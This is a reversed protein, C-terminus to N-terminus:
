MSLLDSKRRELAPPWDQEELPRRGALSWRVLGEAKSLIPNAPLWHMVHRLAAHSARNFVPRLWPHFVVRQRVPKADYGMRFKFRDVSPPADLSHLGYFIWETGPRKLVEGSFVAVLANNVGMPLYATKSQQYLISCCNDCTFAILSAVLKGESVASWTEFGALGGASHCLKEWWDRTEAGTRGQRELTEARLEWGEKAARSFSIPEVDAIKLGKRVDYRAKKPLTSPPYSEGVYTVHYSAQGPSSAWPM